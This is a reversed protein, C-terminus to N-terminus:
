SGRRRRAATAEWPPCHLTAGWERLCDCTTRLITAINAVGRSGGTVAVRAGPKVRRELSLKRIETRVASAVDKVVPPDVKQRIRYMTPLLM